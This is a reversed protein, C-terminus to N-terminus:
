ESVPPDPDRSRRATQEDCQRGPLSHRERGRRSSKNQGARRAVMQFRFRNLWLIAPISMLTRVAVPAWPVILLIAGALYAVRMTGSIKERDFGSSASAVLVIATATAIIVGCVDSPEGNLLLEPSYVFLFPLVFKIWGFQMAYVSTKIFSSGALGCAVLCAIAVPPTIMSLMATYFVFLHAAMTSVGLNILSPALLVAALVYVATTALGMGLFYAACATVALALLLHHAAASSVAVTLIVGLGTSNVVGLMLGVAAGTIVLPTTTRGAEVVM